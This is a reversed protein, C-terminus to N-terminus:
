GGDAPAFLELQVRMTRKPEMGLVRWTGQKQLTRRGIGLNRDYGSIDPMEGLCTVEVDYRGSYHILPLLAALMALAGVIIVPKKM